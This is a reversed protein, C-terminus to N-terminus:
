FSRWHNVWHPRCGRCGLCSACSICTVFFVVGLIFGVLGLIRGIQAMKNEPEVRLVSQGKSTALLGFVIALIGSFRFLALFLSLAGFILVLLARDNLVNDLNYKKGVRDEDLIDEDPGNYEYKNNAM